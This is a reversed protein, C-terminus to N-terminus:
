GSKQLSQTYFIYRIRLYLALYTDAYGDSQSVATALYAGMERLAM